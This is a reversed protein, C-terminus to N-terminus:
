EEINSHESTNQIKQLLKSIKQIQENSLKSNAFGAVMMQHQVTLGDLPVNKNEINALVKLDDKFIYGRKTFFVEIKEVFDLPIKSRGTEIASIFAVSKGLEESMTMLTDNTNRRALRIVEGFKTVAM